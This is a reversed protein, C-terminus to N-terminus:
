IYIKVLFFDTKFTAVTELRHVGWGKLCFVVVFFFVVFVFGFLFVLCCVFVFRVFFLLCVFFPSIGWGCRKTLKIGTRTM